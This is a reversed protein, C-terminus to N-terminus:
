RLKTYSLRRAPDPNDPCRFPVMIPNTISSIM